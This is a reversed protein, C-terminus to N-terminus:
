WFQTVKDFGYDGKLDQTKSTRIRFPNRTYKEYTRIRCSKRSFRDFISGEVVSLALLKFNFPSLNPSSFVSGCLARLVPLPLQTPNAVLM